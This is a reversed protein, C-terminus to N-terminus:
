RHMWGDLYLDRWSHDRSNFDCDFYECLKLILNRWSHDRSNFNFVARRLVDDPLRAMLPRTLQFLQVLAIDGSGNLRTKRTRTLQFESTNM